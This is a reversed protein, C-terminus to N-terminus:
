LQKEPLTWYDGMPLTPSRQAVACVKQLMTETNKHGANLQDSIRPSIGCQASHTEVYRILKIEAEGFSGILKCAEDPSVHSASAAKILKGRREAEERLPVFGSRCEDPRGAQLLPAPTRELGTIPALGDNLPAQGPLPAPFAGQAFGQSAHFTTIALALPVILRRIM